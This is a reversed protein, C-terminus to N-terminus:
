VKTFHLDYAKFTETFEFLSHAFLEKMLAM